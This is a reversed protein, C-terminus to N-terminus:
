QRISIKSTTTTPEPGAPSIAPQRAARCPRFVSTSSFFRRGPALDEQGAPGAAIQGVVRVGAADDLGEARRAPEQVGGQRGQSRMLKAVEEGGLAQGGLDFRASLDKGRAIAGGVHQVDQQPAQLLAAGGQGQVFRQGVDLPLAVSEM